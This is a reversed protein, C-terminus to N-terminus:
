RGTQLGVKHLAHVVEACAMIAGHRTHLDVGTAMNLLRPLVSLLSISLLPAVCKLLM